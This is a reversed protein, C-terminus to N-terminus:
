DADSQSLIYAIATANINTDSCANGSYLSCTNNSYQVRSDYLSFDRLRYDITFSTYAGYFDGKPLFSM